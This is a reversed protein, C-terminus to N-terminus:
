NAQKAAKIVLDRTAIIGPAPDIVDGEYEVGIYGSFNSDKVIQMMKFYDIRKENGNEDFDSSKASVGKAYPMLEAIGQYRDYEEICPAPGWRSGGERLVCFNGFDPLTGCNSMNVAEIVAALKAADNSLQAHNEVAVNINKEAAYNSLDKLATVSADHWAEPETLGFLNVRIAKAGVLVAADVWVKHKAIAEKRKEESPDALEGATDLMILVTEVGAADNKEKWAQALKMVGESYSLSKDLQYLQDVYEVADFGMKKAYAAFDMPDMKGQQIAYHVSWQALSFKYPFVFETEAQAVENKKTTVNEQESSNKCSIALTFILVLSLIIKM